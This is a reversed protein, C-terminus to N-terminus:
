SHKGSEHRNWEYICTGQSMTCIWCVETAMSLCVAKLNSVRNECFQHRWWGLFFVIIYEIPVAKRIHGVYLSPLYRKMLYATVFMIILAQRLFYGFLAFTRKQLIAHDDASRCHNFGLQITDDILIGVFKAVGHHHPPFAAFSPQLWRERHRKLEMMYLHIASMTSRKKFWQLFCNWCYNIFVSSYNSM